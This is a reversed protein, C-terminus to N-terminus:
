FIGDANPDMYEGLQDTDGQEDQTEYKGTNNGNEIMQLEEDPVEQKM